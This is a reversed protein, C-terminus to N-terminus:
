SSIIASSLMDAFELKLSVVCSSVGLLTVRSSFCFTADFGIEGLGAGFTLDFISFNIPSFKILLIPINNTTIPTEKPACYAM